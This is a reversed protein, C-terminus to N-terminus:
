RGLQYAGIDPKDGRSNGLIDKDVGINPKGAGIAPSDPLLTFDLKDKDTFKPDKNLLCNLFYDSGNKVKILCNQFSMELDADQAKHTEAESEINGYIICNIFEAKTDIPPQQEYEPASIKNSVYCAPAKREALFYNAVTLHEMKYNGGELQLGCKGNNAVVCNTMNVNLLRALVGSNATNKIITNNIQVVNATGYEMLPDVQVGIFANTIIANNITATVGENIWIRNWQEYDTDFWSELRDGRFLVPDDTAGNVYVESYRYAWLGSNRHFYIKAGPEITLSCASDIVAWGHVVYPRDKTWTVYREKYGDQPLGAVVRYGSEADAVIYHADQGYALLKVNQKNNGTLFVISDKVFFPANQNLPNINVKVFIFISDKKPITVDKFYSNNDSHGPIGNVNISYQSQKGGALFITTTLENNSPNHVTFKKTISGISTFVTDFTLTSEDVKMKEFFHFQLPANDDIIPKKCSIVCIICLFLTLFYSYIALLYRPSHNM